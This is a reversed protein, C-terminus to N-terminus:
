NFIITITDRRKVFLLIFHAYILVRSLEQAMALFVANIKFVSRLYAPLIAIEGRFQPPPLISLTQRNQRVTKETEQLL